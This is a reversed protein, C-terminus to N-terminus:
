VHARGIQTEERGLGKRAVEPDYRDHLYVHYLSFKGEFINKAGIIGKKALQVAEVAARSAFGPQFRKTWASDTIAQYNGACQAYVIGFANLMEESTLKMIRGAAAAGGFIGLLPTYVYGSEVIGITSALGLRCHIDLGATVAAIFDRGSVGGM